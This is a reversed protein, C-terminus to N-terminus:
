QSSIFLLLVEFSLRITDFDVARSIERYITFSQWEFVKLNLHVLTHGCDETRKAV